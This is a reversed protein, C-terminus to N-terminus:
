ASYHIPKLQSFSSDTYVWLTKPSTIGLEAFTRGLTLNKPDGTGLIGSPAHFYIPYMKDDQTQVFSHKTKKRVDLWGNNLEPFKESFADLEALKKKAENLAKLQYDNFYKNSSSHSIQKEFYKIDKEYRDRSYYLKRTMSPPKLQINMACLRQDYTWKAMKGRPIIPAKSKLEVTVDEKKAKIEALWLDENDWMRHDAFLTEGDRRIEYLQGKKTVVVSSTETRLKTGPLYSM